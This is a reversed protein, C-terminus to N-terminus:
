GETVGELLELNMGCILPRHREALSHFPCNALVVEGDQERPEYGLRRLATIAATRQAKTSRTRPLEAKIAEGIETGMRRAAEALKDLRFAAVSRPIALEAAAEDRSVSGGRAALLAYLDRRLPQDLAAIETLRADFQERDM